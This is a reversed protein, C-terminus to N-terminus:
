SYKKLKMRNKLMAFCLLVFHNFFTFLFFFFFWFFLFCKSKLNKSGAPTYIRVIKLHCVKIKLNLFAKFQCGYQIFLSFPPFIRCKDDEPFVVNLFLLVRVFSCNFIGTCILKTYHRASM